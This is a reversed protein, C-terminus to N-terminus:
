LYETPQLDADVIPGLMEEINKLYSWDIKKSKKTETHNVEERKPQKQVFILTENYAGVKDEKKQTKISINKNNYKDIDHTTTMNYRNMINALGMSYKINEYNQDFQDDEENKMGGDDRM